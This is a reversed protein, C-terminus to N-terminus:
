SSPGMTCTMLLWTEAFGVCARKGRLCTCLISSLLIENCDGTDAKLTHGDQFDRAGLGAKPSNHGPVM